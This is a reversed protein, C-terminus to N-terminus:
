QPCTDQDNEVGTAAYADALGPIAYELAITFASDGGNLPTERRIPTSHATPTVAAPMRGCALLALLLSVILLSFRKM